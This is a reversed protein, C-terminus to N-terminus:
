RAAWASVSWVSRPPPSAPPPWIASPPTSTTSCVRGRVAGAHPAHDERLQRLRAGSGRQPPLPPPRRGPLRGRAFRRTVDEIHDNVGFAEQLVIVAGRPAGDPEADYLAMDGGSTAVTVTTAMSGGRRGPQRRRRGGWGPGAALHPGNPRGSAAGPGVTLRRTWPWRRRRGRGDRRRPWRWRRCWPGDHGGVAVPDNEDGGGPALEALDGVPEQVRALGQGLPPGPLQRRGAGDEAHGAM